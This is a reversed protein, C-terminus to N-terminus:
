SLLYIMLLAVCGFGIDFYCAVIISLNFFLSFFTLPFFKGVSGELALFRLESNFSVVIEM